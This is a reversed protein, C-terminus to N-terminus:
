AFERRSHDGPWLDGRENIALLRGDSSWELEEVRREPVQALEHRALVRVKELRGAAYEYREVRWHHDDVFAAFAAIEGDVREVAEVSVDTPQGPLGGYIYRVSLDREVRCWEELVRGESVSVALIVDGRDDLGYRRTSLEARREQLVDDTGLGARINELPALTALSAGGNGWKSESTRAKADAVISRRFALLKPQRARLARVFAPPEAGVLRL